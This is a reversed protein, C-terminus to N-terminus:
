RLDALKDMLLGTGSSAALSDVVFIKREPYREALENGAVMASNYAGSIGSSLALHLVDKGQKLFEEFYNEYEEVNPQSTSTIKGAAMESYFKDMTMTGDDTHEAGDLIFHFPIIKINREEYHSHSLDATSGCSLIFDNM